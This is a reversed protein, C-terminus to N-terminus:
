KTRAGLTDGDLTSCDRGAMAPAPSSKIRELLAQANLGLVKKKDEVSLRSYVVWGLQQRPDRMPQDSGFFVRDAGAGQVLYDIIGMCVPTLTIEIMFNPYQRAKAIAADAAQYSGGCHAAVFTLNPYRSCPKDFEGLDARQPHFLAYLGRQNGFEWVADYAPDDYFKGYTRYPKIGLFRPDKFITQLKQEIEKRSERAVDFTALGWSFDAPLADLAARVCANGEDAQVHVTGNWSMLGIGDIGLRKALQHVGSPGGNFMTYSGGGGNLGEDLIHAHFDLVLASLPKGQRAETMIEDEDRNIMERPPKIGKLLRILNGSAIKARASDPIDAYDIYARHAGMSMDTANSGFLLQNECGKEVLWEVGRNIQFHDFIIHLNQHRLLLPIIQRQCGWSIGTLLLPLGPHNELLNEVGSVDIEPLSLITLTQSRELAELLPQSTKSQIGWGNTKPYLTVARVGAQEMLGALEEPPPFEGTWHPMANWIPFLFDHKSLQGSLRRNELMPDYHVSSISSVLAGSISCHRMEVVLQDLSWPQAGHVNAKPGIHTFADFYILPNM